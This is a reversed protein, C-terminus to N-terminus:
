ACCWRGTADLPAVAAPAPKVMIPPPPAFSAEPPAEPAVAAPPPSPVVPGLAVVRAEIGQGLEERALQFSAAYARAAEGESALRAQWLRRLEEWEADDIQADALVAARDVFPHALAACIRAFRNASSRPNERTAAM